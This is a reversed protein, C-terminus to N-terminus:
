AANGIRERRVRDIQQEAPTATLDRDEQYFFETGLIHTYELYM